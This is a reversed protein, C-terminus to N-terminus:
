EDDEELMPMTLACVMANLLASDNISTDEALGCFWVTWKDEFGRTRIVKDIMQERIMM